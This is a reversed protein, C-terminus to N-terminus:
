PNYRGLSRQGYSDGPLFVPTPLWARRWHIKGVWPNFSHRKHRRCQCAPEKGSAGGPCGQVIDSSKILYIIFLIFFSHCFVSKEQVSNVIEIYVELSSMETNLSLPQFLLVYEKLWNEAKLGWNSLGWQCKGTLGVIHGEECMQSRTLRCSLVCCNLPSPLSNKEGGHKGQSLWCGKGRLM